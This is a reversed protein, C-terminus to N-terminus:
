LGDYNKKRRSSQEVSNTCVDLFHSFDLVCITEHCKENPDLAAKVRWTRVGLVLEYGM